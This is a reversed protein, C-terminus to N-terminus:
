VFGIHALPSYLYMSFVGRLRFTTVHRCHYSHLLLENPQHVSVRGTKQTCNNDSVRYSPCLDSSALSLSLNFAFAIDFIIDFAVISKPAIPLENKRAVINPVNNGLTNSACADALPIDRLPATLHHVLHLAAM